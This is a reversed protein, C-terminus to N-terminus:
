NEKLDFKDVTKKQGAAFQIFQINTIKFLKCCTEIQEFTLLKPNRKYKRVTERSYGLKTALKKETIRNIVMLQRFWKIEKAM